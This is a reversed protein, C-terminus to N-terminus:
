RLITDTKSDHGPSFRREWVQNEQKEKRKKEKEDEQIAHM